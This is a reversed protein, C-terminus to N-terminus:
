KQEEKCYNNDILFKYLTKSILFNEGNKGQILIEVNGKDDMGTEIGKPIPVTMGTRLRAMASAHCDLFSVGWRVDVLSMILEKYATSTKRYTDLAIKEIKVTEELLCESCRLTRGQDKKLKETTLFCNDDKQFPCKIDCYKGNFVAKIKVSM